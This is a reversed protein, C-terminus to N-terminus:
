LVCLLDDIVCFMNTHTHTHICMVCACVDCVCVCMKENATERWFTEIADMVCMCM